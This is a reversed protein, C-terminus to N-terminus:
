LLLFFILTILIECFSLLILSFMKLCCLSFYKVEITLKTAQLRQDALHLQTTLKENTEKFGKVSSVATKKENQLVAIQQQLSKIREQLLTVSYSPKQVTNRRKTRNM